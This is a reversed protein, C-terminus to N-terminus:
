LTRPKVLKGELDSVPILGVGIVDFAMYMKLRRLKSSWRVWVIKINNLMVPCKHSSM